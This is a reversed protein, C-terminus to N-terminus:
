YTNRRKTKSIKGIKGIQFHRKFVYNVKGHCRNMLLNLINAGYM